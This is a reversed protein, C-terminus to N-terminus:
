RVSDGCSSSPRWVQSQPRESGVLARLTFAGGFTVAAAVWCIVGYPSDLGGWIFGGLAAGLAAGVQSAGNRLASVAGRRAPPAVELVLTQYPGSRAAGATM